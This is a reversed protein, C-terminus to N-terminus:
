YDWLKEPIRDKITFEKKSMSQLISGKENVWVVGLTQNDNLWSLYTRKGHNWPQFQSEGFKLPAESFICRTIEKGHADLLGINKNRKAAAIGHNFEYIAEYVPETLAQGKRDTLQYMGSDVKVVFLDDEYLQSISRYMFPIVIEGKTGVVGVKNGHVAATVGNQFGHVRVYECPLIFNGNVDILGWTAEGSYSEFLAMLPVEDNVAFTPIVDELKGKTNKLEEGYVKRTLQCDKMVWASGDSNFPSAMAFSPAIIEKRKVVDYYGWKGGNIQADQVMGGKNVAVIDGNLLDVYDYEVPCVENGNMDIVGWKGGEPMHEMKMKGGINVWTYDAIFDGVATYKAKIVVKGNEDAFGWLKGKQIPSLIQGYCCVTLICLLFIIIERKMNFVCNRKGSFM